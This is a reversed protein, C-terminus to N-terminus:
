GIKLANKRIKRNRKWTPNDSMSMKKLAEQEYQRVREPTIKNKFVEKAIQKLDHSDCGNLGFRYNIIAKQLPNLGAELISVQVHDNIVDQTKQVSDPSVLFDKTESSGDNEIMADLSMGFKISRNHDLLIQIDRATYDVLESKSNAKPMRASLIGALTEYPPNKEGQQFREEIIKNVMRLRIYQYERLHLGSIVLGEKISNRIALKAYDSFYTGDQELTDVDVKDVANILGISGYSKVDDLNPLHVFDKKRSSHVFTRAISFVLRMNSMIFNDRAVADGKRIRRLYTIGEKRDIKPFEESGLYDDQM